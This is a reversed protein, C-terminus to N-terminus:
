QVMDYLLKQVGQAKFGEVWVFVVPAELARILLGQCGMTM